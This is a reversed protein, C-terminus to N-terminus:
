SCLSHKMLLCMIKFHAIGHKRTVAKRLKAHLDAYCQANITNDSPLYDKLLVCKADLFCDAVKRATKQTELKVSSPTGLTEWSCAPFKSKSTMITFVIGMEQFWPWLFMKSQYKKKYVTSFANVTIEKQEYILPGPVWHACVKWMSLRNLLIKLQKKLWNYM